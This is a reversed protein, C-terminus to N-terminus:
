GSESDMRQVAGTPRLEVKDVLEEINSLIRDGGAPEGGTVVRILDEIM